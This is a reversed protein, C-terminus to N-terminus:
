FYMEEIKNKLEEWRREPMLRRGSEWSKVCDVSVGLIRAVDKQKLGYEKKLRSLNLASFILFTQLGM